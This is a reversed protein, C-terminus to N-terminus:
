GVLRISYGGYHGMIGAISNNETIRRCFVNCRKTRLTNRQNNDSKSVIPNPDPVMVSNHTERNLIINAVLCCSCLETIAESLIDYKCIHISTRRLNARRNVMKDSDVEDDRAIKVANM